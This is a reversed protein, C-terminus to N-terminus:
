ILISYNYSLDFYFDACVASTVTLNHVRLTYLYWQHVCEAATINHRHDDSMVLVYFAAARGIKSGRDTINENEIVNRVNTLGGEELM